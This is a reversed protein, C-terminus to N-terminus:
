VEELLPYADESKPVLAEINYFSAHLTIVVMSAGIVWFMAGHAGVLYYIPMSCVAVLGYQQALTLEKGFLVLKKETHRKNLRYGAYFTGAIAFLILPSTILCYVVLGLFVFLYNAQFYEVNRMIRKGLRPISPPVKFNSTQIFVLWPRVNRRQQQIWEKPDPIQTPIQLFSPYKKKVNIEPPPDMQGSVDVAIDVM